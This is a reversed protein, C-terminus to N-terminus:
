IVSLNANRKGMEFVSITDDSLYYTIVFERESDEATQSVMQARFRLNCNALELFKKMDRQPPKPQISLCSAESDEFSGWGNYPPMIKEVCTDIWRTDVPREIPVFEEIGYKKQYYERTFRDCDVLIVPRGFVNLKEGIKLDKDQQRLM